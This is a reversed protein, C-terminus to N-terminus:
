QFIFPELLALLASGLMAVLMVYVFIKMTKKPM